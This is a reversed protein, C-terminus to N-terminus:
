GEAPATTHACPAANSEPLVKDRLSMAMTHAACLDSYQVSVRGTVAARAVLHEDYKLRMEVRLQPTLEQIYEGDLAVLVDGTEQKWFGVRQIGSLVGVLAQHQALQGLRIRDELDDFPMAGTAASRALVELVHAIGEASDPLVVNNFPVSAAPGVRLSVKDKLTHVCAKKLWVLAARRIRDVSEQGLFLAVQGDMTGVSPVIVTPRGSVTWGRLQGDVEVTSVEVDAFQLQNNGELCRPLDTLLMHVLNHLVDEVSKAYNTDDTSQKLFTHLSYLLLQGLTGVDVSPTISSAPDLLTYPPELSGDDSDLGLVLRAWKRAKAVSPASASGHCRLLYLRGSQATYTPPVAVGSAGGVEAGPAAESDALSPETGTGFREDPQPPDPVLLTTAISFRMNDVTSGATRAAVVMPNSAIWQNLPNPVGETTQWGFATVVNEAVPGFLREGTLVAVEERWMASNAAALQTVGLVLLDSAREIVARAADIAVDEDDSILRVLRNLLSDEGDDMLAAIVPWPRVRSAAVRSQAFTWQVDYPPSKSDLSM